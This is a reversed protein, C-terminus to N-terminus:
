KEEKHKMAADFGCVWAADYGDLFAKDLHKSLDFNYVDVVLHVRNKKHLKLAKERDDMM